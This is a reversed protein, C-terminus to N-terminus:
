EVIEWKDSLLDSLELKYGPSGEEILRKGPDNNENVFYLFNDKAILWICSIWSEHKVAKNEKLALLAEEFKM